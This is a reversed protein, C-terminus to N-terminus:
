CGRSHTQRCLNFCFMSALYILLLPIRVINSDGFPPVDDWTAALLWEGNFDTDNIVLNVLSLISESTRKTHIEYDIQGIGTSIDIDTFFPAM